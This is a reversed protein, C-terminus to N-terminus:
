QQSAKAVARPRAAAHPRRLRRQRLPHPQRAAVCSHQARVPNNRRKRRRGVLDMVSVCWLALVGVCVRGACWCVVVGVCLRLRVLM